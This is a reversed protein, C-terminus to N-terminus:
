SLEVQNVIDEKIVLDARVLEGEQSVGIVWLREGPSVPLAMGIADHAVDCHQPPIVGHHIEPSASNRGWRVDLPKGAVNRIYFLLTDGMLVFLGGFSFRTDCGAQVKGIPQLVM